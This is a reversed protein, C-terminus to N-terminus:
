IPLLEDEVVQYNVVCTSYMLFDAVNFGVYYYLSTCFDARQRDVKLM